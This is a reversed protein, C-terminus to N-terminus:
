QIVLVLRITALSNPPPLPCARDYDKCSVRDIAEKEQPTVQIAMPALGPGGPSEGSPPQPQQQQGGAASSFESGPGSESNLMQIFSQQNQSIMQQTFYMFTM